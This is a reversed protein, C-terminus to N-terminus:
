LVERGQTVIAVYDRKTLVVDSKSVEARIGVGKSLGSVLLFKPTGDDYTGIGFIVRANKPLQVDCHPSQMVEVLDAVRSTM